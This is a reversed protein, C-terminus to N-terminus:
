EGWIGFLLDVEEFGFAHASRRFQDFLWNRRRMDEPYFDRTGRPAKLGDGGKGM